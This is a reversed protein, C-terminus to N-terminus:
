NRPKRLGNDGNSHPYLALIHFRVKRKPALCAPFNELDYTLPMMYKDPSVKEANQANNMNPAAAAVLKVWPGLSKTV